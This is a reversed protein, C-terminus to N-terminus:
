EVAGITRAASENIRPNRLHVPEKERNTRFRFNLAEVLVSFGMAFYIYGKPVHHHLGDAVLTTGILLLFALALIKVTPHQSVFSSLPGSAVLMVLVASVVAAVMVPLNDTMGVATIVSDLSFVIDLLLIQAIIGAFSAARGAGHEEDNGELKAHIETTAKYILFLGGLILIIDRGSVDFDFQEITFLTGTLGIIWTLSFLMAIRTFMALSLGIIRARDRQAAPLKDALISIFIVNDIGLIIELSALTVFATLLELSFLDGM